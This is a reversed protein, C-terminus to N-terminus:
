TPRDGAKANEFITRVEHHMGLVFARKEADTWSLVVGAKILAGEQDRAEQWMDESDQNSPLRDLARLFADGTLSAVTELYSEAYTRGWYAGAGWAQPYADLTESEITTMANAVPQGGGIPKGRSSRGQQALDVCIPCTLHPQYGSRVAAGAGRFPIDLWFFGLTKAGVGRKTHLSKIHLARASKEGVNPSAQVWAKLAAMGAETPIMRPRENYPLVM